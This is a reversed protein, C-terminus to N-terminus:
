MRKFINYLKNELEAVSANERLGITEREVGHRFVTIKNKLGYEKYFVECIVTGRIYYTQYENKKIVHYSILNNEILPCFKNKMEVRIDKKFTVKEPGNPIPNYRLSKIPRKSGPYMSWAVALETISKQNEEGIM